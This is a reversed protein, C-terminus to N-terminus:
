GHRNTAANLSAEECVKQSLLASAGNSPTPIGGTILNYLSHVARLPAEVYRGARSRGQGLVRVGPFNRSEEVLRDTWCLGGQEMSVSRKAFVMTLEFIAHEPGFGCGITVRLGNPAALVLPVSPDGEVGDWVPEGASILSVEGLLQRLLDIMHSGNNIVGRCYAGYVLRLPGFRREAISTALEQVDPDWRRTHNVVLHVGARDCEEVLSSTEAVTPTVPKECFVVLPRLALSARVDAAHSGTPSCISVVDFALGSEAADHIGAFDAHVGWDRMFARRAEPDPDVCGVLSFGGHRLYSAAHTRPFESPQRGRDYNGAIRGCGVLLVRLKRM